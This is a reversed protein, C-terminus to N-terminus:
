TTACASMYRADASECKRVLMNGSPARMRM